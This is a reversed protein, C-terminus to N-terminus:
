YSSALIAITIEKIASREMNQTKYTHRGGVYGRKRSEECSQATHTHRSKCAAILIRNGDNM